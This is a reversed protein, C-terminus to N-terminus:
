IPCSAIDFPAQVHCNYTWTESDDCWCVDGDDMCQDVEVSGCNPSILKCQYCTTTNRDDSVILYSNCGDVSCMLCSQPNGVAGTCYNSQDGYCGTSLSFFEVTGCEGGSQAGWVSAAVSGDLETYPREPGGVFVSAGAALVFASCVLAGTTFTSKRRM